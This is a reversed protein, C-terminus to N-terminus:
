KGIRPRRGFPLFIFALILEAVLWVLRLVVAVGLATADPLPLHLVEAFYFHGLLVSILFERVGAGGPIMSLFGAVIAMSVAALFYPLHTIADIGTIGLGLLVAWLSYALLVWGLSVMVWGSLILPLRLNALREKIEPDLREAGLRVVLYRFIPPLTPLGSLILLAVALPLLYPHDRLHDRLWFVMMLIALSAGVAMMTLTELFVSVATVTSGIKADRLLSTRLVVVLAKGPVYKGLTGIYFARLTDRIQVRQGLAQLLFYWFAAMPLMGLLYLLGSVILWGPHLQWAFGNAGKADLDAWAFHVTRYIGWSVVALVVLNLLLKLQKARTGSIAMM